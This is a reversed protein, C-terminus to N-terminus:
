ANGGRGGKAGPAVLRHLVNGDKDCMELITEGGDAGSAGDFGGKGGEGIVVRMHTCDKLDDATFAGTVYNGGAGGEGGVAGEGVAGGGGGGAGPAQANQGDLNVTGLLSEISGGAGLSIAGGGGGGAGPAAGGAGGLNFVATSRGQIFLFQQRVAEMDPRDLISTVRELHFFDVEVEPCASALNTRESLRLEQNTVFAIGVAGNIKVGECDSRFKDQIDRFEQQGRPFYCAVIFKQENRYAIADRKGDRGGLPHSPDIRRYGEAAVIQHSLRESQAQGYTWERLRHWTEDPRLPM